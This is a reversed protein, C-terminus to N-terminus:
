MLIRLLMYIGFSNLLFTLVIFWLPKIRSIGMLALGLEDPLPSAVVFAGIITLFFKYKSHRLVAIIKKIGKEDSIITMSKTMNDSLFSLLIADGLVCGVGAIIAIFPIPITEAFTLLVVAAPAATFLSVFFMGAIFVGVYGFTNLIPLLEHFLGTQYLVVAILLSIMVYFFSQFFSSHKQLVSQNTSQLNKRKRM